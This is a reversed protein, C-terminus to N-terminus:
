NGEDRDVKALASIIDLIKRKETEGLERRLKRTM